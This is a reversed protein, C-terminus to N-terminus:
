IDHPSPRKPRGRAAQSARSLSDVQALAMLSADVTEADVDIAEDSASCGGCDCSSSGVLVAAAAGGCMTLSAAAMTSPMALGVAVAAGAATVVEGGGEEEGGLDGVSLRAASERAKGTPAAGAPAMDATEATELVVAELWEEDATEAAGADFREVEEDDGVFSLSGLGGGDEVEVEVVDDGALFAGASLPMPSMLMPM